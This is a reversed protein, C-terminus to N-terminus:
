KLECHFIKVKLQTKALIFVFRGSYGYSQSRLRRLQCQKSYFVHMRKQQQVQESSPKVFYTACKSLLLYHRLIDNYNVTLRSTQEFGFLVEPTEGEQKEEYPLKSQCSTVPPQLFPLSSLKIIKRMEKENNSLGLPGLSKCLQPEMILGLCM